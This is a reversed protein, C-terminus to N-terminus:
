RKKKKELSPLGRSGIWTCMRLSPLRAFNQNLGYAECVILAEGALFHVTQRLDHFHVSVLNFPCPMFM